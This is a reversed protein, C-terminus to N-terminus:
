RRKRLKWFRTGMNLAILALLSAGSIWAGRRLPDPRYDMRVESIGPELRVARFTGLVKEISVARGNVEAKWGPDSNDALVLLGPSELQARLQVANPTYRTIEVTADQVPGASLAGSPPLVYARPFARQYETIWPPGEFVIEFDPIEKRYPLLVYRVNLASLLIRNLSQPDGVQLFSGVRRPIPRGQMTYLYGAYDGPITVDYGRATSIGHVMLRNPFLEPYEQRIWWDIMADPRLARHLGQHEKLFRVAPVESYESQLLEAAARPQIFRHAFWGCELTILGLAIAGYLRRRSAMLWDLLFWGLWAASFLLGIRLGQILDAWRQANLIRPDFEKQHLPVPGRSLWALVAESRVSVFVLCGLLIATIVAATLLVALRARRDGGTPELWHKFGYGALVCACLCYVLIFRAPVRFYQVGPVFWYLLRYLPTYVGFAFVLAALIAGIWFRKRPISRRALAVVLWLLTGLGLFGCIEHYGAGRADGWFERGTVDGFLFPTIFTALQAPPLSGWTAEEYDLGLSRMASVKNFAYCPLWYVTTLFLGAGLALLLMGVPRLLEDLSQRSQQYREWGDRLALLTILLLTLYPIQPQGCLILVALVVALLTWRGWSPRESWRLYALLALPTWPLANLITVHGASVRPMLFGCSMFALAGATAAMRHRTLHHILAYMAWGAGLAHLWLTWGFFKLTSLLPLVFQPPYYIAVQLNGIFPSGGFTYPNWLPYGETRFQRVWFDTWPYFQNLIDESALTVNAFPIPWFLVLSYLTLFALGPGHGRLSFSLLRDKGAIM